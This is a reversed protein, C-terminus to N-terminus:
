ISTSTQLTAEVIEAIAITAEEEGRYGVVQLGVPLGHFLQPDDIIPTRGVPDM